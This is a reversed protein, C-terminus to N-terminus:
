DNNNDNLEHFGQSAQDIFKEANTIHDQILGPIDREM